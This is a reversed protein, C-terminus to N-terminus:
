TIFETTIIRQYLDPANKQIIRRKQDLYNFEERWHARSLRFSLFKATDSRRVDEPLEERSLVAGEEGGTFRIFAEVASEPYGVAHGFARDHEPSHPSHYARILAAVESTTRGVFFNTAGQDESMLFPLRVQKLASETVKVDRHYNPDMYEPGYQSFSDVCLWTAPKEGLKVLMIDAMQRYTLQTEPLDLLLYEMKRAEVNHAVDLTSVSGESFGEM